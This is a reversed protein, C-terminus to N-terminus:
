IKKILESFQTFSMLPKLYDIAEKNCNIIHHIQNKESEKLQSKKWSLESECMSIVSELQTIMYKIEEFSKGKSWNYITESEKVYVNKM